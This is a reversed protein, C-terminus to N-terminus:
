FRGRKEFIINDPNDADMKGEVLRFGNRELLKISSLNNKHTFAEIVDLGLNNFGFGMVAKLSENMIGKGQSKPHLDYGVEAYKGDKSLNWLCISDIMQDNEKEAIAWYYAEQEKINDNIRSIFALAKEKTEAAPRTVFENVKKDTRLYSVTEWDSTTLRRLILRDTHLTPFPM